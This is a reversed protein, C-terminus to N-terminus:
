LKKADESEVEIMSGSTHWGLSTLVNEIAKPLLDRKGNVFYSLQPQSIGAALAISRVSKGSDEFAKLITERMSPSEASMAKDKAPLAKATTKTTRTTATQAAKKAM